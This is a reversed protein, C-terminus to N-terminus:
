QVSLTVHKGARALMDVLADITFKMAKKNVLDSVRPRTICLIQAAEVQRLDRAQIWDALESMLAEKIALKESIIRESRAKLKAAEESEFGLDLFVNGGAPTIHASKTEITMKQEKLSLLVIVPRRLIKTTGVQLPQKKESAICCM